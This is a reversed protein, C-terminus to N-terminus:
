RLPYRICSRDYIFSLSSSSSSPISSELIVTCRGVKKVSRSGLELEKISLKRIGRCEFGHKNLVKHIRVIDSELNPTEVDHVM